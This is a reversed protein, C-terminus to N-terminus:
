FFATITQQIHTSIILRMQRKALNNWLNETFRYLSKFNLSRSSIGQKLTIFFEYPLFYSM